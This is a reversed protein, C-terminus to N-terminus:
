SSRPEAMRFVRDGTLFDYEDARAPHTGIEVVQRRARSFVSALRAPSVPKLPVFADVMRHRRALVSDFVSRASRNWWGEEGREFSFNRRIVIGPPLLRGLVVNACLHMHHHGDIRLPQEGYLRQFEELQSAVLYEFSPALAPHYLYRSLRSRRLYSAVAGHHERLRQPLGPQSPPGTLNLHLGVDVGGARAIEAGRESDAMFVMGSVATVSGARICDWIKGTTAASEGWDDANIIACAAHSQGGAGAAGWERYSALRARSQSAPFHARDGVTEESPAPIADSSVPEANSIGSMGCLGPEGLM